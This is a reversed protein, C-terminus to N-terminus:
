FLYNISANLGTWSYKQQLQYTDKTISNPAYRHYAELGVEIHRTLRYYASIGGEYSLSSREVFPSEDRDGINAVTYPNELIRGKSNLSLNYVVGTRLGLSWLGFRKQYGLSIPM